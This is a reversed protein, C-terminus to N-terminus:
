AGLAETKTAVHLPSSVDTLVVGEIRQAICWSGSADLGFRALGTVGVSEKSLLGSCFIASGDISVYGNAVVPGDFVAHGVIELDGTVKLPERYRVNGDILLDGEIVGGQRVEIVDARLSELRDKDGEIALIIPTGTSEDRVKIRQASSVGRMGGHYAAHALALVPAVGAALFALEAPM